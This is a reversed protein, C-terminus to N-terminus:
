GVAPGQAPPRLDVGSAAAAAPGAVAPRRRRGSLDGLGFGVLAQEVLQKRRARPVLALRACFDLHGRVSFRAYLGRDGASLFGIRRHYERWSGESSIGDITVSGTSPALIATAIRLLTTKGAGNDGGVCIATGQPSRCTSGASCQGAPSAGGGTAGSAM